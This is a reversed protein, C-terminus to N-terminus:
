SFMKLFEEDSMEAIFEGSEIYDAFREGVETNTNRLSAILAELEFIVENDFVEYGDKDANMLKILVCIEVSYEEYKYKSPYIWETELNICYRRKWFHCRYKYRCVIEKWTEEPNSAEQLRKVIDDERLQWVILEFDRRHNKVQQGEKIFAKNYVEM